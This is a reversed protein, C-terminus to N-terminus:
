NPDVAKLRGNRQLEERLLIVLLLHRQRLDVILYVTKPEVKVPHQQQQKFDVAKILLDLLLQPAQTKNVQALLQQLQTIARLQLRPQKVAKDALLPKLERIVKLQSKKAV